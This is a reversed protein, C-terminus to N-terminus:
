FTLTIILQDTYNGPPVSPQAPVVGYADLRLPVGAQAQAQVPVGRGSGDGWVLTYSPSTFIEYILRAGAPGTMARPGSNGSSRLTVTFATTEDCTVEIRGTSFSIRGLDVIGFTLPRSDVTCAAHVIAPICCGALGLLAVTVGRQM